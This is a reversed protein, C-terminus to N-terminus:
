GSRPEPSDSTERGQFGSPRVEGQRIAKSSRDHVGDPLIMRGASGDLIRSDQIVTHRGGGM